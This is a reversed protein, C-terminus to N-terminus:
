YWQLQNKKPKPENSYYTIRFTYTYVPDFLYELRAFCKVKIICNKDCYMDRISKEAYVGIAHAFAFADYNFFHGKPLVLNRHREDGWNLVSQGRNMRNTKVSVRCWRTHFFRSNTQIELECTCMTKKGVFCSVQLSEFSMSNYGVFKEGIEQTLPIAMFKKSKRKIRSKFAFPAGLGLYSLVVYGILGLVLCIHLGSVIEFWLERIFDGM